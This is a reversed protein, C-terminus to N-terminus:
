QGHLQDMLDEVATILEVLGEGGQQHEVMAVIIYEKDKQTVVGSDTHFQRWTGSKRYVEAEPKKKKMGKVFQKDLAKEFAAQFDSDISDRLSPYKDDTAHVITVLLQLSIMMLLVSLFSLTIRAFLRQKYMYLTKHKM